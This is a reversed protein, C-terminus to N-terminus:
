NGKVKEIYVELSRLARYITVRPFDSEHAKLIILLIEYRDKGMVLVDHETIEVNSVIKNLGDYGKEIYRSLYWCAKELDEVAKDQDKFGARLIYKVANGITFNMRETLDIVEFSYQTYHSPHSVADEVEAEVIEEVVEADEPIDWPADLNGYKLRWQLAEAQCLQCAFFGTCRAKPPPPGPELPSDPIHYGHSTWTM